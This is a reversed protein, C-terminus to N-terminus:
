RKINQNILQLNPNMGGPAQIITTPNIVRKYNEVLQHKEDSESLFLIDGLNIKFEKEKTTGLIWPILIMNQGTTMPVLPSKIIIYDKNKEVFTCFVLEGGKTKLLVVDDKKIKEDIM